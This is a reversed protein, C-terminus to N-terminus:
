QIVQWIIYSHKLNSGNNQHTSILTAMRIQQDNHTALSTVLFYNSSVSLGTLPISNSQNACATTVDSMSLFIGHEVRCNYLQEAQEITMQPSLTLLVPISATNINITTLQGAAQSNTGSQTTPLAALYPSIANFIAPTIGAVQRLESIDLMAQHAARYPPNDNAYLQDSNNNTSPLLWDTINNALQLAKEPSLTPVAYNLLNIFGQQTNPYALNNINFLSTADVVKAYCTTGDITTPSISPPITLFHNQSTPSQAWANSYDAISIEAQKSLGTAYLIMQNSNNNLAALHAILRFKYATSTALLAVIVTIFLATLLASAKQKFKVM